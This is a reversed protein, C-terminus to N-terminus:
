TTAAPAAGDGDHPDDLSTLPRRLVVLAIATVLLAAGAIVMSARVGVGDAVGGMVLAGFAMSITYLMIRAAIVRGRMATAVILQLATNVGAIVALFGAGALLLALVAALYNEVLGVVILAVAVTIIGAGVVRSLPHRSAAVFPGSILAGMGAAATMVGLEWGNVSYVTQALIVTLNFVPNFFVGILISILISWLIGPQRRTYGLASTLSTLVSIRPGSAVPAANRGIAFLAFLVCTFSIANLLFAAPAGLTGILIGALAPGFARGVNFQMSNLTVASQLDERPVLDHVIAQWSPLNVGSLLGQVMIPLIVWLPNDVGSAVILFLSIAVLAGGTQTALLVYRRNFRDSWAGGLPGTLVTPIFQAAAGIGVWIASHTMEFIVFPVALNSLWTGTTSLAAATWFIAFRPHRLARFAGQREGTM